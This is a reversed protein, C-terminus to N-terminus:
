EAGSEEHHARRLVFKVRTCDRRVIIERSDSVVRSCESVLLLNKLFGLSAYFSAIDESVDYGFRHSGQM